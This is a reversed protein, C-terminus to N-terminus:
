SSPRSSQSSAVPTRASCAQNEKLSPRIPLASNKTIQPASKPIFFITTYPAVQLPRSRSQLQTSDTITVTQLSKVIKTCPQHSTPLFLSPIIEEPHHQIWCHYIITEPYLFYERIQITPVEKELRYYFFDRSSAPYSKSCYIYWSPRDCTSGRSKGCCRFM